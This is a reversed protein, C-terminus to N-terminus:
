IFIFPVFWEGIEEKGIKISLSHFALLEIFTISIYVKQIRSEHIKIGFKHMNKEKEVVNSARAM